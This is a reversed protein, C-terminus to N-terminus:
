WGCGSVFPAVASCAQPGRDGSNCVALLSHLLLSLRTAVIYEQEHLSPYLYCCDLFMKIEASSRDTLPGSGLQRIQDWLGRNGHSSLKAGSGVSYWLCVFGLHTDIRLYCVCNFANVENARQHANTQTFTWFAIGSSSSSGTSGAGTALIRLYLM